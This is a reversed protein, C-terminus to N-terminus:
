RPSISSAPRCRRTNRPPCRNTATSARAGPPANFAWHKTEGQGGQVIVCRVDDYSATYEAVLGAADELIERQLMTYDWWEPAVVSLPRGMTNEKRDDPHAAIALAVKRYSIM